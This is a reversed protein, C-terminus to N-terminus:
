KHKEETTKVSEQPLLPLRFALRKKYDAICAEWSDGTGYIILKKTKKPGRFAGVTYSYRLVGTSEDLIHLIIGDVREGAILYIDRVHFGFLHRRRVIKNRSPKM